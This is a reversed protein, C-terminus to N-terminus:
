PLVTVTTKSVQTRPITTSQVPLTITMNTSDTSEGGLYRGDVAIYDIGNRVGTGAVDFRQGLQEGGGQITFTAATEIRVCRVGNREELGAAHSRTASRVTVNGTARDNTTLSDTWTAGLTIGSAPLRPFFNRFSGVIPSVAQAAVSDSPTPNRFDGQPTLRGVFSLGRAVRLDVNMPVTTGSDPVISDISVTMPYGVSDAPGIITVRYFPRLGYTVQQRGTPLEQEIRVLQHTTYRLTSPGLRIVDTPRVSAPPPAPPPATPSVPTAATTPTTRSTCATAITVVAVGLLRLRM